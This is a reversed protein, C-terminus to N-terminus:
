LNSDERGCETRSEVGDLLRWNGELAATAAKVLRGAEEPPAKALVRRSAEAHEADREAHLSFYSTAAEDGTFGYHRVLGKLKTRAVDPQGSEIAYLVARSELEDQRRWATACLRTQSTPERDLAADLATAFEDWLEIHAAEEAAHGADGARAAADALAVVAHRYEGAYFALERRSLEGRAWRLYFPHDLVNWRTRAEDIREILNM